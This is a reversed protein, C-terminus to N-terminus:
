REKLNTIHCINVVKMWGIAFKSKIRLCLRQFARRFSKSCASYLFFNVAFNFYYILQFLHQLFLVPKPYVFTPDIFETVVAYIRFAHSPLNLAVFVSSVIILSRTTRMQLRGKGRSKLMKTKTKSRINYTTASNINTRSYRKSTVSASIEIETEPNFNKEFLISCRSMLQDAAPSVMYLIETNDKHVFEWIKLTIKVNLVIIIIAPLILTVLTDVTSIVQLERMYKPKSICYSQGGPLEVLGISWIIYSYICMAVVSIIGIMIM